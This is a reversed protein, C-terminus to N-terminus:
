ARATAPDALHHHHVSLALPANWLECNADDTPNIPISYYLRTTLLCTLVMLESADCHSQCFRWAMQMPDTLSRAHLWRRSARPRAIVSRVRHGRSFRCWSLVLLQPYRSMGLPADIAKEGLTGLDRLWPRLELLGRARAGRPIRRTSKLPGPSRIQAHGNACPLAWVSHILFPL